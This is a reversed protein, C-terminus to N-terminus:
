NRQLVKMILNQWKKTDKIIVSKLKRNYMEIEIEDGVKLTTKENIIANNIKVISYGKKLVNDPHFLGPLEDIRELHRKEKKLLNRSHLVLLSEQHELENKNECVMQASYILTFQKFEIFNRIEHEIINKPMVSIVEFGLNLFSHKDTLRTKVNSVIRNSITHLNGRELRTISVGKSYLFQASTNVENKLLMIKRKYLEMIYNYGSTVKVHFQYAKDVIYSGVASPTKFYKNAVFDIVTTDTEHGIGTFVPLPFNAVTKALEYSNFAELDFKSGGGRIIIVADYNQSQIENLKSIIEGVAKEGQVLCGYQTIKFDFGYENRQLQKLFDTHGSTNPSGVLAIKQIVISHKIEANKGLLGEVKLQNLTEQKKKELEGISFSKDINCINISLGYVENFVVESYCLIESGNKLINKFDEGLENKINNVAGLWITASCKALVTGNQTEVLDLYYRGNRDSKISSIEVKLWFFKGKVKQDLYEKIGHLIKSLTYTKIENM